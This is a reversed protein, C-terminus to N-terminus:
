CATTGECLREHPARKDESGGILTQLGSLSVLAAGVAAARGTPPPPSSKVCVMGGVEVADDYTKRAEADTKDSM